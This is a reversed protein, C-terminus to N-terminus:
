IGPPHEVSANSVCLGTIYVTPLSVAINDQPQGTFFV